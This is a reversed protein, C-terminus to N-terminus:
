INYKRVPVYSSWSIQCLGNTCTNNLMRVEFHYVDYALVSYFKYSLERNDDTGHVVESALLKMESGELKGFMELRYNQVGFRLPV